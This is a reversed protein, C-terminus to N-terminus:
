RANELLTEMARAPCTKLCHECAICRTENFSVLMEPRKIELAGTPCIVSCAGCHTCRDEKWIIQQQLNLIKLGKSKMWEMAEAYKDEEGIVEVVMRGEKRPNINARLINVMLDFDKFLYYIVPLEVISAPFHMVIKQRIM